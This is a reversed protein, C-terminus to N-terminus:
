PEYIWWLDILDGLTGTSDYGYGGFLWFNGAADTWGVAQYRAGPVNGGPATGLNGYTGKQGYVNSGSMWTWEGASYKWLDNLYSQTGRQTMAM